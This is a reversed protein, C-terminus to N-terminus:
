LHQEFGESAQRLQSSGCEDCYAFKPHSSQVHGCKICEALPM